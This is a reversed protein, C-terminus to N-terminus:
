INKIEGIVEEVIQNELGYWIPLCIHKNVIDEPDDGLAYDYVPSTRNTLRSFEKQPNSSSAILTFKYLNSRHGDKLPDIFNLGVNKCAEIYKHAITYKNEIIEDIEKLVSYTLLANLESMRINIGLDLKQDFRDYMSFKQVKESLDSDNSVIIGGEGVPVAKTAYLSYVGADGYLGSHEGEYLSGLSHACDEVLSIDKDKCLKAIEKIDPNIWGGIHTIMFVCESPNKLKKIFDAVQNYTPMIYDLSCDVYGCLELGSSLAITKVGYMTNSQIFIRKKGRFEKLVRLIAHLGAGNSNVALASSAGTYSKSWDSVKKNWNGEALAGSEFIQDSYEYFYNLSKKPIKIMGM